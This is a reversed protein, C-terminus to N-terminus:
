ASIGWCNYWHLLTVKSSYANFVVCFFPVPIKLVGSMRGEIGYNGNGSLNERFGIKIMYEVALERKNPGSQRSFFNLSM